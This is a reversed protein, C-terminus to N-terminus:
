RVVVGHIIRPGADIGHAALWLATRRARRHRTLLTSMSDSAWRLRSGPQTCRAPRARGDYVSKM